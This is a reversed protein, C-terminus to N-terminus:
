WKPPQLKKLLEVLEGVEPDMQANTFDEPIEFTRSPGLLQRHVLQGAPSLKWLRILGHKQGTAITSGDPSIAISCHGGFIGTEPFGNFLIKGSEVEWVCLKRANTVGLVFKGDPSCVMGMLSYSSRKLSRVREATSIDWIQPEGGFGGTVVWQGNPHFTCDYVKGSTEFSKKCEKSAIDWIRISSDRCASILQTGDQSFAVAQINDRHGELVGVCTMKELDWLRVQHNHSGSALLKAKPSFALARVATEQGTLVGTCERTELSYVRIPGEEEGVAMLHGDSSVAVSKVPSECTFKCVFQNKRSNWIVVSRDESVSALTVGDPFFVLKNVALRHGELAPLCQTTTVDWVRISPSDHTACSYLKSGDLSFVVRQLSGYCANIICKVKMEALDWIYISQHGGYASVLRSGDPSFAISQVPLDLRDVRLVAICQGDAMSWMRVTGDDSASALTTGDPSFVVHRAARQHGEFKFKLALGDVSWVTVHKNLSGIAVLKCDPSVAVSTIRADLPGIINKPPKGDFTEVWERYTAGFPRLTEMDWLRVTQDTSGTAVFRGDASFAACTVDDGHGLIFSYEGSEVQWLNVSRGFSAGFVMKGDHSFAVGTFESKIAEQITRVLARTETDWIYIKDEWAVAIMRGDPSCALDRATGKQEEVTAFEGVKVGKLNVNRCQTNFMCAHVMTADSLDANDFKCDSLVALSLNAKPVQIGSWDGIDAFSFEIMGHLSAYNLVSIANSAAQVLMRNKESEADTGHPNAAIGRTHLIIQTLKQILESDDVLKQSWNLLAEPDQTLLTEGLDQVLIPDLTPTANKAEVKEEAQAKAEKPTASAKIEQNPAPASEQAPKTETVEVSASTTKSQTETPENEPKATTTQPETPKTEPESSITEPEVSKADPEVTETDPAVAETGSEVTETGTEVTETSPEAVETNPEVAETGPEVDKTEPELAKTEPHAPENEPQPTEMPPEVQKGQTVSDTTDAEVPPFTYGNTQQDSNQQNTHGRCALYCGKCLIWCIEGLTPEKYGSKSSSNSSNSSM